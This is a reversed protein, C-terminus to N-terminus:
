SPKKRETLLFTNRKSAQIFGPLCFYALLHLCSFFDGIQSVWITERLRSCWVPVTIEPPVALTHGHAGIAREGVQEGVHQAAAGNGQATAAAGLCHLEEGGM